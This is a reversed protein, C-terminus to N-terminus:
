EQYSIEDYSSITIKMMEQHFILEGDLETGEFMFTFLYKGPTPTEPKNGM